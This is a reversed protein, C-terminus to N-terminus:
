LLGRLKPMGAPQAQQSPIKPMQPVFPGSSGAGAGPLQFAKSYDQAPPAPLGVPKNLSPAPQAPDMAPQAPGMQPKPKTSYIPGTMPRNTNPRNANDDPVPARDTGPAPPLGTQGGTITKYLHNQMAHAEPSNLRAEDQPTLGQRQEVVKGTSDTVVVTWQNKDPSGGSSTNMWLGGGIPRSHGFKVNSIFNTDYGNVLGGGNPDSSGLQRLFTAVDNGFYSNLPAWGSGEGGMAEAPNQFNYDGGRDAGTGYDYTNGTPASGPQRLQKEKHMMMVGKAYPMRNAQVVKPDMSDVDGGNADVVAKDVWWSGDRIYEKGHIVQVDGLEGQGWNQHSGKVKGPRAIDGGQQSAAAAADDQEPVGTRESWVGGPVLPNDPRVRPQRPRQYTSVGPREEYDESGNHYVTAPM